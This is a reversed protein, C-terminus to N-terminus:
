TGALRRWLRPWARLPQGADRTLKRHDEEICHDRVLRVRGRAAAECAPTFVSPPLWVADVGRRAAAEAVHEHAAAARRFVVVLDVAGPLDALTEWSPVGGVEARDIRVPLVEYGAKRLYEFVTRSHRERRPSAGVVAVTRARALLRRLLVDQHTLHKM